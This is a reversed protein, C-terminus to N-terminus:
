GEAVQVSERIRGAESVSGAGAPMNLLGNACPDDEHQAGTTVTDRVCGRYCQKRGRGERKTDPANVRAM